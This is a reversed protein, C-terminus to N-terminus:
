CIPAIGFHWSQGRDLSYTLWKNGGIAVITSSDIFRISRLERGNVTMQNLSTDWSNGGDTSILVLSATLGSSLNNGGALIVLSDGWRDESLYFKGGLGSGGYDLSIYTSDWTLGGDASKYRISRNQTHVYLSEPTLMQVINALHRTPFTRTTWTQGGNNTISYIGNLGIAVANQSDYQDIARYHASDPGFVRSWTNGGDTTRIALGSDGVAMATQHDLQHIAQLKPGEITTIFPNLPIDQFFWGGGGDNTRLVFNFNSPFPIDSDYYFGVVTCNESDSCSISTFDYRRSGEVSEKLTLWQSISSEPWLVLLIIAALLIQMQKPHLYAGSM